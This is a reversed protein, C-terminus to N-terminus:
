KIPLSLNLQLFPVNVDHHKCCLLPYNLITICSLVQENWSCTLLAQYYYLGHFSEVYM